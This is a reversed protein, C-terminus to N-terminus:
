NESIHWLTRSPRYILQSDAIDKTTAVDMNLYITASKEPSLSFALQTKGAGSPVCLANFAGSLSGALFRELLGNVFTM